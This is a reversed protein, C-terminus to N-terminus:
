DATFPREPAAAEEPAAVEEKEVPPANMSSAAARSREKKLRDVLRGRQREGRWARDFAARREPTADPSGVVRICAVVDKGLVDTDPGIIITKGLWGSSQIGLLVAIAYGNTKGAIFKKDKGKLSIVPKREKKGGTMPVDEMVVSEIVVKIQRGGLDEAKVYKGPFMVSLPIDSM